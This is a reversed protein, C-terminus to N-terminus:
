IDMDSHIRYRMRIYEFYFRMVMHFPEQEKQPNFKFMMKLCVKICRLANNFDVAQKVSRILM